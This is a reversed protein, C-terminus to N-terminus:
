CADGCPHVLMKLEGVTVGDLTSGPSLDFGDAQAEDLLDAVEDRSFWEFDRRGIVTGADLVMWHDNRVASM